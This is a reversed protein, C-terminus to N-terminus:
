SNRRIRSLWNITGHKKWIQTAWICGLIFGVSAIVIAVIQGTNSSWKLYILLAFLGAGITVGLVIQLWGFIGLLLEILKM